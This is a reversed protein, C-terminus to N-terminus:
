LHSIKKKQCCFILCCRSCKGRRLKDSILKSLNRSVFTFYIDDIKDLDRDKTKRLQIGIKDIISNIEKVKNQYKNIKVSDTNEKLAEEELKMFKRRKRHAKNKQIYLDLINTSFIPYNIDYIM